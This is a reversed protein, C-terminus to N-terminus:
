ARRRKGICLALGAGGLLLMCLWLGPTARDGTKPPVPAAQVHLVAATSDATKGHADTVRCFYRFGDSALEVASTVYSAGTAGQLARWGSGDSRDIFWQYSLRDGTASVAFTARQGVVAFQDQPSAAVVPPEPAPAIIFTPYGDVSNDWPAAARWLDETGHKVYVTVPNPVNGFAGAEVTAPADATMTLSTLHELVMVASQAIHTVSPLDASTLSDCFYLSRGPLATLKPLSIRTLDHCYIIAMDGFNTTEPLSLESFSNAEFAMEGISTAKPLSVRVVNDCWKFASDGVITVSPASVATIASADHIGPYGFAWQGIGTVAYAVGGHTVAEPINLEGAYAPDVLGNAYTVTGDGVTVTKGDPNITYVFTGDRFDGSPSVTVAVDGHVQELVFSGGIRTLPTAAGDRTVTYGADPTFTVTGSTDQVWIGDPAVGGVAPNSVVPVGAHSPNNVTVPHYDYQTGGSANNSVTGGYNHVTGTAENMTVLGTNTKVVGYNQGITGANLDITVGVPNVPIMASAPNDAALAPRVSVLLMLAAALLLRCFRDTCRM